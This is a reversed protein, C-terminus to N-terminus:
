HFINKQIFNENLDWSNSVRLLREKGDQNPEERPTQIKIEKNTRQIMVELPRIQVAKADM